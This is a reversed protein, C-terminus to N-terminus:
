EDEKGENQEVVLKLEKFTAWKNRYLRERDSTASDVVVAKISWEVARRENPLEGRHKAIEAVAEDFTEFPGSTYSAGERPDVRVWYGVNHYTKKVTLNIM